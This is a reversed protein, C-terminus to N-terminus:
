DTPEANDVQSEDWARVCAPCVWVGLHYEWKDRRIKKRFGSKSGVYFAVDKCEYCAVVWVQFITGKAEEINTNNSIQQRM